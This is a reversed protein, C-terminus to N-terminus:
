RITHKSNERGGDREGASLSRGSIFDYGSIFLMLVRDVRSDPARSIGPDKGRKAIISSEDYVM